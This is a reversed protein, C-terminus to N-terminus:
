LPVFRGTGDLSVHDRLVISALYGTVSDHRGSLPGTDYDDALRDFGREIADRVDQMTRGSGLTALADVMTDGIPDVNKHPALVPVRVTFGLWARVGSTIADSGLNRGTKCAISVVAKRAAASVNSKDITVTGATLWSDRDGHGFYCALQCNHRLASHIQATDPPSTDDVDAVVTHGNASLRNILADCWDSAQQTTADDRPRIVVLNAM